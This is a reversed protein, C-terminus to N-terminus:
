LNSQFNVFELIDTKHVHFKIGNIGLQTLKCRSYRRRATLRVGVVILRHRGRKTLTSSACGAETTLGLSAKTNPSLKVDAATRGGIPSVSLWLVHM